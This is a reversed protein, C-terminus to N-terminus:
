PVNGRLYDVIFRSAILNMDYWVGTSDSKQCVDPVDEVTVFPM